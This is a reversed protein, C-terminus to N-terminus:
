SVGVRPKFEFESVPFNTWSKVNVNVCLYKQPFFFLTLSALHRISSRNLDNVDGSTTSKWMRANKVYKSMETVIDPM